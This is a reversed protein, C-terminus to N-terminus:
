PHVMLSTIPTPPSKLLHLINKQVIYPLIKKKKIAPNKKESPSVKM